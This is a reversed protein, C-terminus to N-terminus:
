AEMDSEGKKHTQLDIHTCLAELTAFFVQENTRVNKLSYRWAEPSDNDRWLRLVYFNETRM